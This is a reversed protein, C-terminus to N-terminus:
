HAAAAARKTAVLLAVAPPQLDFPPFELAGASTVEATGAALTENTRTADVVTVAYDWLDAAAADADADADAPFGSVTVQASGTSSRQSSVLVRVERASSPDEADRGALVAFDEESSSDDNAADDPLVSAASAAAAAELFWPARQAMAGWYSFAFTLKRWLAAGPDSDQDFLGWGVGTTESAETGLACAPYLTSVAVGAERMRILTSAVATAGIADDQIGGCDYPMCPFWETVHQRVAGAGFAGDLRAGM